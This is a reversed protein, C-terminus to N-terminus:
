RWGPEIFEGGAGWGKFDGDILKGGIVHEAVMTVAFSAPITRPRSAVRSSSDFGSCIRMGDIKRKVMALILGAPSDVVGNTEGGDPRSVRTQPHPIENQSQDADRVFRILLWNPCPMIRVHFVSNRKRM